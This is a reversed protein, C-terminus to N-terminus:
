LDPCKTVGNNKQDHYKEAFIKLVFLHILDFYGLITLIFICM